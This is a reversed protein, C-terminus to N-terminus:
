LNKHYLVLGSVPKEVVKGFHFSNQACVRQLISSFNQAIGGTFHVSLNKESRYHNIHKDFFDQFANQALLYCYRESLNAFIFHAFTALYRNPESKKYINELISERSLSYRSALKESLELPMEGYLFDTILKKGLFGGSGEDGLYLGLSPRSSVIKEGDFVCSNSGTGLICAIGAQNGCLARATGLLDHAIHIEAAPFVLSLGEFIVKNMNESSCGAGYFYIVDPTQHGIDPLVEKRLVAEITEPTNYFPSLGKSNVPLIQGDATCFRWDTKTGGSDAILMNKRGSM